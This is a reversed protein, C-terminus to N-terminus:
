ASQFIEVWRSKSSLNESAKNDKFWPESLMAKYLEPSNDLEKIREILRSYDLRNLLIRMKQAKAKTKLKRRVKYYLSNYTAPRYDRFDYQGFNELFSKLRGNNITIYDFANIMSKPNFIDAILPDGCYIPISNTQMADYLKETQYGPYVYSEFAVTFKYPMLFQRKIEWKTGTYQSDMAPMNNMCTGPADVHKYASLQRFFEDRYAIPNSYLFNCFKTKQGYVKDVDINKVLLKPDLGHWQIRKYRKNGIEDETPIGFAWECNELNPTIAECYYGIRVYNGKPPIDNGYPGFVIFDPKDSDVFEYEGTLESLIEGVASEFALGNRFQIKIPIKM